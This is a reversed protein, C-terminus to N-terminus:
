YPYISWDYAFGVADDDGDPSADLVGSPQGLHEAGDRHRVDVLAGNAVPMEGGAWEIWGDEDRRDGM